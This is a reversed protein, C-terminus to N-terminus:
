EDNSVMMSLAQRQCEPAELRASRCVDVDFTEDYRYVLFVCGYHRQFLQEEAQELSEPGNGASTRVLTGIRVRNM